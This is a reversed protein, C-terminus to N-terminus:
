KWAHAWIRILKRSQRESENLRGAGSKIEVKSFGCARLMDRLGAENPAWWTSKDTNVQDSNFFEWLPRDEQGPLHVGLTEVILQDKTLAGVRSLSHLPDRSHYLVGLYLVLDFPESQFDEVHTLISTVNSGLIERTVDFARRGPQGVEDIAWSPPAYTDPVRGAARESEVWQNIKPWDYCWSYYDIATVSGAGRREAEFSYWGGFAGVDLVSKGRVDPWDILTTETALVASDKRVGEIFLSGLDVSHWIAQGACRARFEHESIPSKFDKYIDVPRSNRIQDVFSM